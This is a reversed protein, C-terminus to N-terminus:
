LVDSWYEKLSDLKLFILSLILVQWLGSFVVLHLTTNQVPYLVNMFFRTFDLYLTSYLASVIRDKCNDQLM